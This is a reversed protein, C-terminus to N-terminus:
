QGSMETLVRGVPGSPTEVELVTALRPAVDNVAIANDYRGAHVGPGMFIVPAHADNGFLAGHTAGTQPTCGNMGRRTVAGQTLQRELDLTTNM